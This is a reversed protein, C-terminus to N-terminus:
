SMYVCVCYFCHFCLVYLATLLGYLCVCLLFLPFVCCSPRYILWIFVWMLFLPLVCYSPRCNLWIFVWVCLLPLLRLCFVLSCWCCCSPVTLGSSSCRLPCVVWSLENTLLFSYLTSVGQLTMFCLFYLIYMMKVFGWNFVHMVYWYVYNIRMIICIRKAVFMTGFCIVEYHLMWKVPLETWLLWCCHSFRLM